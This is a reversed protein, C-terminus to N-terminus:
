MWTSTLMNLTLTPAEFGLIGKLQQTNINNILCYKVITFEIAYLIISYINSCPFDFSCILVTIAM